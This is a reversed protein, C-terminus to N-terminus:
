VYSSLSIRRRSMDLDDQREVALTGAMVLSASIGCGLNFTETHIILSTYDAHGVEKIPVLVVVLHQNGFMLGYILNM